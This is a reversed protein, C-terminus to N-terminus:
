MQKKEPVNKVHRAKALCVEFGAEKLMQYLSIWYAGTLFKLPNLPKIM